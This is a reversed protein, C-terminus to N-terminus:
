LDRAQPDGSAAAAREGVDPGGAGKAQPMITSFVVVGPWM